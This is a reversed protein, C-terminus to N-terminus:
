VKFTNKVGEHVLCSPGGALRLYVQVKQSPSLTATGDQFVSYTAIMEGVFIESLLNLPVFIIDPQTPNTVLVSFEYSGVEVGQEDKGIISVHVVAGARMGAVVPRILRVGIRASECTVIGNYLPEFTPPQLEIPLAANSTTKM